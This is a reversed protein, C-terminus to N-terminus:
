VGGGLQKFQLDTLDIIQQKIIERAEENTISNLLWLYDNITAQIDRVFGLEAQVEQGLALEINSVADPDSEDLGAKRMLEPYTINPILTSDRYLVGNDELSYNEVDSNYCKHNKGGLIWGEGLEFFADQVRKKKEESFGRVDICLKEM